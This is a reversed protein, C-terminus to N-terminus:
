LGENRNRLPSLRATGATGSPMAFIALLMIVGYVTGALGRTASGAIKHDRIAMIARRHPEKASRRRHGPGRRDLGGAASMRMSFQSWHVLQPEEL